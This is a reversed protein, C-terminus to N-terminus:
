RVLMLCLAKGYDIILPPDRRRPSHSTLNISFMIYRYWCPIMLNVNRALMLSCGM